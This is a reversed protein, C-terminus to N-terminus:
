GGHRVGEMAKKGGNAAQRDFRRRLVRQSRLNAAYAFSIAWLLQVFDNTYSIAAYDSLLQTALLAVLLLRVGSRDQTRRGARALVVLSWVPVFYYAVVGFVGLDALLEAYNNHAYTIAWGSYDYFYYVSYNAFGVGTLPQQRFLEFGIRTMEARTSTSADVAGASGLLGAFRFGVLDYLAPVNIVAWLVGMFLFMAVAAFAFRTAGGKRLLVCYFLFGISCAALSLRSKTFLLVLGFACIVFLCLVKHEESRRYRYVWILLCAACVNGLANPHYGVTAGLRNAGSSADALIQTADKWVAMPTTIVLVVLLAVGAWALCDVLYEICDESRAYLAVFVGIVIFQIVGVLAETSSSPSRAWFTSLACWFAFFGYSFLYPRVDPLTWRRALKSAIMLLMFGQFAYVVYVWNRLAVTAIFALAISVKCLDIDKADKALRDVAENM